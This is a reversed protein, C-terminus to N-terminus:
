FQFEQTRPFVETELLSPCGTVQNSVGWGPEGPPYLGHTNETFEAEDAVAPTRVARPLCRATRDTRRPRQKHFGLRGAEVGLQTTRFTHSFQSTHSMACPRVRPMSDLTLVAQRLTPGHLHLDHFRCPCTHTRAYTHRSTRM